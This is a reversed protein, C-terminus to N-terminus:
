TASLITTSYRDNSKTVHRSSQQCNLGSWLSLSICGRRVMLADPWVTSMSAVTIPMREVPHRATYGVYLIKGLGDKFRYVYYGRRDYTTATLVEPHDEYTCYPPELLSRQEPQVRQVPPKRPRLMVPRPEPRIDTWWLPDQVLDTM